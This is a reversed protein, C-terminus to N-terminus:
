PGGEGAGRERALRDVQAPEGPLRDAAVEEGAPAGRALLRRRARGPDRALEARAHVHHRDRDVVLARGRLAERAVVAPCPRHHVVGAVVERVPVVDQPLRRGHDEVLLPPDGPLVGALDAGARDGLHEVGQELRSPRYDPPAMFTTETTPLRGWNMLAAGSAAASPATESWTSM